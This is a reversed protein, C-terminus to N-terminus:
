AILIIIIVDVDCTSCVVVMDFACAGIADNLKHM